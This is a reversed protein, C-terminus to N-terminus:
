KFNLNNLNNLTKSILALPNKDYSLSINFKYKVDIGDITFVNNKFYNIIKKSINEFYVKNKDGTIFFDSQGLIYLSINKNINKQLGIIFERIFKKLFTYGYNTYYYGLDYLHINVLIKRNMLKHELHQYNYVYESIYDPKDKLKFFYFSLLLDINKLFYEKNYFSVANNFNYFQKKNIDVEKSYLVIVNSFQNLCPFTSLYNTYLEDDIIVLKYKINSFLCSNKINILSDVKYKKNELLTIIREDHGLYLINNNNM